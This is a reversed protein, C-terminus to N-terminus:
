KWCFGCNDLICFMEGADMIGHGKCHKCNKDAAPNDPLGGNGRIWKTKEFIKRKKINKM